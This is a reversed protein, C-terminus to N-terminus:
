CRASPKVTASKSALSNEGV